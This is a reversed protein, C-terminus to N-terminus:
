TASQSHGRSPHGIDEQTLLFLISGLNNVDPFISSWVGSKGTTLKSEARHSKSIDGSKTRTIHTIIADQILREFLKVIQSTLSVPRYNTAISRSGKKFLPTVNADRWDQPVHGSRVSLNFIYSLPVDFDLCDRLVNVHIGDPGSSKFLTLKAL